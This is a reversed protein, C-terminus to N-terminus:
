YKSILHSKLKKSFSPYTYAEKIDSDLSNFIMPGQYKISFQRPKTRIRPLHFSKSTRTNYRHIQSNLTFMDQFGIPTLSNRISFMFQSIQLKRIDELKLLYLSELIPNTHALFYSKNIVRIIRKQLTQLRSMITQYTNSWVLNRYQLYPYITSFYLIRLSQKNLFFSAKRIIGISKSIENAVFAIHSRWTLYEDLVVGLFVTEKVQEIEKNNLKIRIQVSARKQRPKFLILKTKDFDLTLKNVTLWHSFKPIESNLTKILENPDNNSFFLNTDDAFLIVKALSSVNCIDNIYILFFLSGLISGQPVGCNIKELSSASSNFQVFQFRNSLYSKIWDLAVGRIGYHYLKMFLIDYNVTDFAKSLDM